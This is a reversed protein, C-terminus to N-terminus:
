GSGDEARWCLARAVALRIFPGNPPLERYQPYRRRLAEVGDAADAADLVSADGLLQVWALREWDDSYHDVLVAAAPGRRLARVRAQEARQKPKHDIASWVHEGAVAFTIPLVRPLGTPDSYGLRAVRAETLLRTAWPPLTALGLGM